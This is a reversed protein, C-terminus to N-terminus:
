VPPPFTDKQKLDKKKKKKTVLNIYKTVLFFYGDLYWYLTLVKGMQSISTRSVHKVEGRLRLLHPLIKKLLCKLERNKQKTQNPKEKSAM